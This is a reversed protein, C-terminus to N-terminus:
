SFDEIMGSSANHFHRTQREHSFAMSLALLTVWLKQVIAQIVGLVSNNVTVQFVRGASEQTKQITSSNKM